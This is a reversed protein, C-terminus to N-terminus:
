LLGESASLVFTSYKGNSTPIRRARLCVPPLSGRLSTWCPSGAASGDARGGSQLAGVDSAAAGLDVLVQQPERGVRIGPAAANVPGPLDFRKLAAGFWGPPPPPAALALSALDSSRQRIPLSRRGQFCGTRIRLTGLSAACANHRELSGTQVHLVSWAATAKSGM